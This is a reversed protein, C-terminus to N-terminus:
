SPGPLDGPVQQATAQVQPQQAATTQVQPVVGPAPQHVDDDMQDLPQAAPPPQQIAAPPHGLPALNAGTLPLRQPPQDLPDSTWDSPTIRGNNHMYQAYSRTHDLVRLDSIYRVRIPDPDERAVKVWAECDYVWYKFIDHDYKLSRALYFMSNRMPALDESIYVNQLYLDNHTKLAKRANFFVNRTDVTTMKVLIPRPKSLKPRGVRYCVNIDRSGIELDLKTAIGIVLQLVDEDPGEPVGSVKLNRTRNKQEYSELKYKVQDLETDKKAANIELKEVISELRSVHGQLGLIAKLIPENQVQYINGFAAKVSDVSLAATLTDAFNGQTVNVSSTDQNATMSPSPPPRFFPLNQRTTDLQIPSSASRTLTVPRTTDITRNGDIPELPAFDSDFESETKEEQITYGKFAQELHFLSGKQLKTERPNRPKNPTSDTGSITRKRSGQEGTAM